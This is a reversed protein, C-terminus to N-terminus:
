ASSPMRSLRPHSSNLRTSKRDEGPKLIKPKITLTSGSSTGNADAAWYPITVGAGTMFAAINPPMFSYSGDANGLFGAPAAGWTATMALGDPDLDNTLVNGTQAADWRSGWDDLDSQADITLWHWVSQNTIAIQM